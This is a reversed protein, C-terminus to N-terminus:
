KVHFTTIKEVSRSLERVFYTQNINNPEDSLRKKRLKHQFNMQFDNGAERINFNLALNNSINKM